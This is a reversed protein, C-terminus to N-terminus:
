KMPLCVSEESGCAGCVPEGPILAPCPNSVVNTCTENTDCLTDDECNTAPFCGEPAAQEAEEACGPRLYRCASDAACLDPHDYDKCATEEGSCTPPEVIWVHTTAGGDEVANCTPEVTQEGCSTPVAYSCNEPPLEFDGVSCDDGTKPLADPCPVSFYPPFHPYCSLNKTEVVKWSRDAECTATEFGCEIDYNCELGAVFWSCNEGDEPATQPCDPSPPPPPNSTTHIGDCGAGLSTATAAVAITTIFASKRVTNKRRRQM